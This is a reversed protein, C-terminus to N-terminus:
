GATTPSPSPNDARGPPRTVTLWLFGGLGAPDGLVPHDPFLRHQPVVRGGTRARLSRFDVGACIDAGWAGRRGRRHGVPDGGSFDVAIAEGVVVRDVIQRWAEDRTLGCVGDGWQQVWALQEPSASPGPAGDTGLIRGDRVVDAPIDDLFEHAFALGHVPPLCAPAVGQIWRVPLDPAPRVDVGLLRDAPFGLALLQGLLRGSGAGIDVIWPRDIGCEEAVEQCRRMVLRAVQAGVDISTSFHEEAIVGREQHTWSMAESWTLGADM